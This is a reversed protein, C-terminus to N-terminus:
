PNGTLLTNRLYEEYVEDNELNEKEMFQRIKERHEEIQEIDIKKNKRLNFAKLVPTINRWNTLTKFSADDTKMSLPVVHDVTWHDGYNDM